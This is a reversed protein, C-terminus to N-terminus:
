DAAFRKDGDKAPKPAVASEGKAASPANSAERSGGGAFAQPAGTMAGSVATM